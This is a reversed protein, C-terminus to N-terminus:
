KQGEWQIDSRWYTSGGYPAFGLDELVADAEHIWDQWEVRPGALSRATKERLWEPYKERLWELYKENM